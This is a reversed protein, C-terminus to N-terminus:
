SALLLMDALKNNNLSTTARFTCSCGTNNTFQGVAAAQISTPTQTKPQQWTSRCIHCAGPAKRLEGGDAPTGHHCIPALTSGARATSTTLISVGRSLQRAVRRHMTSIQVQTNGCLVSFQLRVPIAPKTISLYQMNKKNVNGRLRSTAPLPFVAFFQM